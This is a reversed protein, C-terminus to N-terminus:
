GQHRCPSARAVEQHRQCYVRVTGLIVPSFFILLSFNTLFMLNLYILHSVKPIEIRYPRGRSGVTSVSSARKNPTAGSEANGDGGGNGKRKKSRLAVNLPM